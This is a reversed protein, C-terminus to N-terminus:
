RFRGGCLSAVPIYPNHNLIAVILSIGLVYATDLVDYKDTDLAAFIYWLVSLVVYAVMVLVLAEM